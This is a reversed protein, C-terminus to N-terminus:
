RRAKRGVERGVQVQFSHGTPGVVVRRDTKVDELAKRCGNISMGSYINLDPWVVSGSYM